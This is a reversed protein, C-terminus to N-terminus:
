NRNNSIMEVPQDAREEFVVGVQECRLVVGPSSHQAVVLVTPPRAVGPTPRGGGESLSVGAKNGQSVVLMELDELAAVKGGVQRVIVDVETQGGVVVPAERGSYHSTQSLARCGQSEPGGEVVPTVGPQAALRVVFQYTLPPSM